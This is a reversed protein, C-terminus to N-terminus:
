GSATIHRHCRHCDGGPFWGDTSLITTDESENIHEDKTVCQACVFDRDDAFTVGICNNPLGNDRTTPNLITTGM